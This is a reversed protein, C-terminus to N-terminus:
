ASTFSTTIRLFLEQCRKGVRVWLCVCALAPRRFEPRRFDLTRIAEAIDSARTGFEGFGSERGRMPEKPKSM